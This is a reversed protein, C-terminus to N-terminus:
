IGASQAVRLAAPLSRVTRRTMGLCAAQTRRATIVGNFASLSKRLM